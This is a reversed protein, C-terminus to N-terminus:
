KTMDKVDAPAPKQTNFTDVPCSQYRQTLGYLILALVIAVIVVILIRKQM